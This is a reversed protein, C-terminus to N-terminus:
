YESSEVDISNVEMTPMISQSRFMQMYDLLVDNATEERFVMQQEILQNDDSSKGTVENFTNNKFMENYVSEFSKNM